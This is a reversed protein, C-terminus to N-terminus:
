INLTPSFTEFIYEKRVPKKVVEWNKKKLKTNSRRLFDV